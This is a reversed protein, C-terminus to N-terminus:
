LQVQQCEACDSDGKEITMMYMAQRRTMLTLPADGVITDDGISHTQSSSPKPGWQRCDTSTKNTAFKRLVRIESRLVLSTSQVKNEHRVTYM